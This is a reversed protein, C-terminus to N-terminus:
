SPKIDARSWLDPRNFISLAYRYKAANRAPATLRTKMSGLVVGKMRIVPAIIAMTAGNNSSTTEFLLSM